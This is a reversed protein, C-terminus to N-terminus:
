NWFRGSQAMSLKDIVAILGGVSQEVSLDAGSGGMDTRVWGPHVPCAIVGEVLLEKLMVQM